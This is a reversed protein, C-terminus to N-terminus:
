DLNFRVPETEEPISREDPSLGHGGFMGGAALSAGLVDGAQPDRKAPRIYLSLVILAVPLVIFILFATM